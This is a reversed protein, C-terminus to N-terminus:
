GKVEYFQGSNPALMTDGKRYKKGDSAKDFGGSIIKVEYGSIGVSLLKVVGYGSLKHKLLYTNGVKLHDDAIREFDPKNM